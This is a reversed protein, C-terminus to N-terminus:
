KSPAFISNNKFHPFKPLKNYCYILFIRYTKVSPVSASSGSKGIRARVSALGPCIRDREIGDVLYLHRDCREVYALGAERSSSDIGDRFGTGIRHLPREVAIDVILVHYARGRPRQLVPLGPLLIVRLKGLGVAKGDACRYYPVPEKDKCIRFELPVRGRIDIGRGVPGVVADLEELIHYVVSLIEPVAKVARYGLGHDPM